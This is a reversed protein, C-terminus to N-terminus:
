LISYTENKSLKIQILGKSNFLVSGISSYVSDNYSNFFSEIANYYTKGHINISDYRRSNNNHASDFILKHNYYLTTSSNNISITLEKMDINLLTEKSGDSNIKEIFPDYLRGTEIIIDIKPYLSTLKASKTQYRVYDGGRIFDMPTQYYRGYAHTVRNVVFDFEYGNSHVFRIKQKQNYPVFDKEQSSLSISDLEVSDICATLSIAIFIISISKM